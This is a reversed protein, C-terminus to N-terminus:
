LFSLTDKQKHNSKAAVIISLFKLLAPTQQMIAEFLTIDSAM